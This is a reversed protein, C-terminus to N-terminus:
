RETRHRNISGGTLNSKYCLKKSLICQSFFDEKEMGLRLTKQLRTNMLILAPVVSM